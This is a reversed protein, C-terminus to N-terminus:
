LHMSRSHNIVANSFSLLTIMNFAIKLNNYRLFNGLSVHSVISASVKNILGPTNLANKRINVYDMNADKVQVDSLM